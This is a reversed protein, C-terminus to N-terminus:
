PLINNTRYHVAHSYSNISKENKKNRQQKAAKVNLIM